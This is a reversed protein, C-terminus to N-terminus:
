ADPRTASPVAPCSTVLQLRVYPQGGVCAAPQAGDGGAGSKLRLLDEGSEGFVDPQVLVAGQGDVGECRVVSVARGPAPPLGLTVADVVSPGAPRPM